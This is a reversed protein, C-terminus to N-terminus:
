RVTSCTAFTTSGEKKVAVKAQTSTCFHNVFRHFALLRTQFWLSICKQEPGSMKGWIACRRPRSCQETLSYNLPSHFSLLLDHCFVLLGHGCRGFWRCFPCQQPSHPHDLEFPAQLYANLFCASELNMSIRYYLTCRRRFFFSSVKPM